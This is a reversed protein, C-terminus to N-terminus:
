VRTLFMNDLKIRQAIHRRSDLLFQYRDNLIQAEIANKELLNDIELLQDQLSIMQTDNMGIGGSDSVAFM